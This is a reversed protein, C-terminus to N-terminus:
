GKSVTFGIGFGMDDVSHLTGDADVKVERDRGLEKKLEDLSSAKDVGWIVERVTPGQEPAKPLSADSSPKLLVTQGSAMTFGGKVGALPKLGWDSFFRVGTDLDDVGYILTEVRQIKMAGGPSYEKSRMSYGLKPAGASPM